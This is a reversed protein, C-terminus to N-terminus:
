FHIMKTDDVGASKLNILIESVMFTEFMNGAVASCKLADATLWRAGGVLRFNSKIIVEM